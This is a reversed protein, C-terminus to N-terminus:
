AAAAGRESAGHREVAACFVSIRLMSASQAPAKSAGETLEAFVMHWTRRSM